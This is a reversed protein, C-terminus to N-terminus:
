LSSSVSGCGGSVNVEDSQECMARTIEQPMGAPTPVTETHPRVSVERELQIAILVFVAELLSVRADM